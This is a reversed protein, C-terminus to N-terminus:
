RMSKTWHNSLETNRALDIYESHVGCWDYTGSHRKRTSEKRWEAFDFKLFSGKLGIKEIGGQAIVEKTTM